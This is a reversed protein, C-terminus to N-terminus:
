VLQLAIWTILWLWGATAGLIATLYVARVLHSKSGSLGANGLSQTTTKQPGTASESFMSGLMGKFERDLPLLRRSVHM